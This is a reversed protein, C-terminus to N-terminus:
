IDMLLPVPLSSITCADQQQDTVLDNGPPKLHSYQLVKGSGEGPFRRLLFGVDGANATLNKVVLGDPVGWPM